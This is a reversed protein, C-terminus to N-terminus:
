ESMLIQIKFRQELETIQREMAEIAFSTGPPDFALRTKFYLYTDLGGFGEVGETIFEEWIATSDSISFLTTPGVGIQFLSMFATNAHAIIDTDFSTESLPIGLMQKLTNLISKGTPEPDTM